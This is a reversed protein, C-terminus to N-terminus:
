PLPLVELEPELYILVKSKVTFGAEVLASAYLEIQQIHKEEKKGTKFEALMVTSGDFIVKDPRLIKEGAMSISIENRQLLNPNFLWEIGKHDYLRATLSRLRVSVHEPLHFKRAFKELEPEWIGWDNVSALFLHALKGFQMELSTTESVVMIRKRWSRREWSETHLEAQESKTPPTPLGGLEIWDDQETDYGRTQLFQRLWANMGTKEEKVKAPSLIFLANEARTCAVYHVNLDDLTSKEGELVYLGALEEHPSDKSLTVLAAPLDNGPIKIWADSRNIQSRSPSVPYILAPFQLGKAKHITMIQVSLGDSPLQLSLDPHQELWDAVEGLSENRRISRELIHDLFALLFPDQFNSNGLAQLCSECAEYLGLEMLNDLRIGTDSEDFISQLGGSPDRSVILQSASLSMRGTNGACLYAAVGCAPIPDGPKNLHFILNKLFRVQSSNSLLMSEPSSVAIGNTILLSATESASGNDRFLIAIDGPRYGNKLLRRVLALVEIQQKQRLEDSSEGRIFRFAVMGEADKRVSGQELEQYADTVKGGLSDRCFAFFDNNFEVIKPLSRYNQQLKLKRYLSNLLLSQHMIGPYDRLRPFGPLSTFLEPEGNRFRYIAQKPDGVILGSGGNGLANEMMPVLNYWQLVSTDQFEDIFVHRFRNGTREYIFPEPQSRIVKSIRRNFESIHLTQREDRQTNLHRQIENLLIVQYVNERAKSLLYYRPRIIDLYDALQRLDAAIHAEKSLLGPDSSSRKAKSILDGTLAAKNFYSNSGSIRHFRSSALDEVVGYFGSRVQSFAEPGYPYVQIFVKEALNRASQEIQACEKLLADKAAVLRDPHFLALQELYHYSDERFLKYAIHRLSDGIRWSKQDLASQLAFDLLARTIEKDKGAEALLDGIAYDLLQSEELEVEFPQPLHLDYAFSRAIGHVFSDITSVNFRDYQHLILQRAQLANRRIGADDMNCAKILAPLVFAPLPKGKAEGSLGDLYDLIRDKMEAAAKNTFTLALIHAFDAPKRIILVLYDMVLAATKGSGASATMVTLAM